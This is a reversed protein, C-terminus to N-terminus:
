FSASKMRRALRERASKRLNIIQQRTLQLREAIKADELPLEGLLGAFELDTMELAEVIQRLTAVGTLWFMELRSNGQADKLNLLLAARQKLPLQCIEAWLHSIYLRLEVAEDVAMQTGSVQGQRGSSEYENSSNSEVPRDKIGTAEVVLCVLDDLEVPCRLHKVMAVAIRALNEAPSGAASPLSQPNDRLHNIEGVTAPSGKEEQWAALGCLLEENEGEWLALERHHSFIYRLRNKLRYRQPYKSRLHEHFANHAVTAAYNRFNRIPRQSPDDKFEQLRALLSLVANSCIDEAEQAQGRYRAAYVLRLKYKIISKIIPEAHEHILESLLDRSKMEDPAGLLPLLLGDIDQLSARESM